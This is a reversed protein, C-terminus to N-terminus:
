QNQGSSASAAASGTRRSPDIYGPKLQAEYDNWIDTNWVEFRRGAGTLVVDRGLEAYERLRSALLIRGQADLEQDDAGALLYRAPGINEVDNVDTNVADESFTEFGESTFVYLCQTVGRAVVAGDGFQKRYKAPIALRGKDDLRLTFTGHFRDAM